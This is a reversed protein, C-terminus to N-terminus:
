RKNCIKIRKFDYQKIKRKKEKLLIIARIYTNDREKSGTVFQDMHASDSLINLSKNILNLRKQIKEKNM